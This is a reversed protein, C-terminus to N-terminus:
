RAAGLVVALSSFKGARCAHKKSSPRASVRKAVGVHHAHEVEEAGVVGHVEHHAVLAPARQVLVQGLVAPRQLSSQIRLM